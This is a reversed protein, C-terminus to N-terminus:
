ITFDKPEQYISQQPYIKKQLQIYDVKAKLAEEIAKEGNNFDAILYLINHTKM